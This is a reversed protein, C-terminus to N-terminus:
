FVGRSQAKIVLFPLEIADIPCIDECILCYICQEPYTLTAKGDKQALADTPCAMVCERCGICLSQDIKPMWDTNSM